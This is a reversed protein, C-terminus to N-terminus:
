TIICEEPGEPNENYLLTLNRNKAWEPYQSDRDGYIMQTPSIETPYFPTDKITELEQLENFLMDFQYDSMIPNGKVYYWYCCKIIQRRVKEIHSGKLGERLM